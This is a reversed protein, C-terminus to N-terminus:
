ALLVAAGEASGRNLYITNEKWAGGEERRKLHLIVLFFNSVLHTLLRGSVNLGSVLREEKVVYGKCVGELM